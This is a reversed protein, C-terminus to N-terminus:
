TWRSDFLIRPLSRITRAPSSGKATFPSFREGFVRPRMQPRKRWSLTWGDHPFHREDTLGSPIPCGKRLRATHTRAHDAPRTQGFIAGPLIEPHDRRNYRGHGQRHNESEDEDRRIHAYIKRIQLRHLGGRIQGRDRYAPLIQLRVIAMGNGQILRAPLRADPHKT